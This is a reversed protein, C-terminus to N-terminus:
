LFKRMRVKSRSKYKILDFDNTRGTPSLGFLGRKGTKTEVYYTRKFPAEQENMRSSKQLKTQDKQNTVTSCSQDIVFETLTVDTTKDDSNLDM